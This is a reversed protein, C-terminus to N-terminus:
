SIVVKYRLFVQNVNRIIKLFNYVITLTTTLVLFFSTVIDNFPLRELFAVQYGFPEEHM